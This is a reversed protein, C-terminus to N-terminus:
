NQNAKQNTRVPHLPQIENRASTISELTQQNSGGCKEGAYVAFSSEVSIFSGAALLPTNDGGSL